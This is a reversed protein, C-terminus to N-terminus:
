TGDGGCSQRFIWDLKLWLWGRRRKRLFAWTSEAASLTKQLCLTNVENWTFFIKPPNYDVLDFDRAVLYVRSKQAVHDRGTPGPEGVGDLRRRIWRGIGKAVERREESIGSSSLVLSSSSAPPVASSVVVEFDSDGVTLSAVKAELEVVRERLGAIEAAQGKVISLVSDLQAQSIPRSSMCAPVPIKRHVASVAQKAVVSALEAAGIPHFGFGPGSILGLCHWDAFQCPM